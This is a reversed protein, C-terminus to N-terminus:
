IKINYLFESRKSYINNQVIDFTKKACICSGELSNAYPHIALIIGYKNYFDTKIKFKNIHFASKWDLYAYKSIKYKSQLFANLLKITSKKNKIISEYLLDDDKCIYDLSLIDKDNAYQYYIRLQNFSEIKAFQSKIINPIILRINMNSTMIIKDANIFKDNITLIYNNTIPMYSIQQVNHGVYVNNHINLYLKEILENNINIIYKSQNMKLLNDHNYKIYDSIEMQDLKRDAIYSIFKMYEDNTLHKKAFDNVSINQIPYKDFIHKIKEFLKKYFNIMSIPKQDLKYNINLEKLLNIMHTHHPYIQYEIKKDFIKKNLLKGGIKSSREYIDFDINYRNLMYGIYLGTIGGGIIIIKM